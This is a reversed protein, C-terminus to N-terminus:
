IGQVNFFEEKSEKEANDSSKQVGFAAFFRLHRYDDLMNYVTFACFLLAGHM